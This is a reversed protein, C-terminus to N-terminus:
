SRAPTRRAEADPIVYRMRCMRAFCARLPRLRVQFRAVDRQSVEELNLEQAHYAKFRRSTYHRLFVDHYRYVSKLEYYKLQNRQSLLLARKNGQYAGLLM